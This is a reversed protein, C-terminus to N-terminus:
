CTLSAILGFNVFRLLEKGEEDEEPITKIRRKSQSTPAPGDDELPDDGEESDSDKYVGDGFDILSDKNLLGSGGALEGTEEDDAKKSKAELTERKIREYEPRYVTYYEDKLEDIKSFFKDFGSSCVLSQM